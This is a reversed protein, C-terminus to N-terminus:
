KSGVPIYCINCIADPATRVSNKMKILFFTFLLYKKDLDPLYLLM